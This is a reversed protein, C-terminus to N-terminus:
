VKDYTDGVIAILLNLMVVIFAFCMLNFIFFGYGSEDNTKQNIVLLAANFFIEMMGDKGPEECDEINFISGMSEPNLKIFQVLFTFILIGFFFIFMFSFMDRFVEKVMSIFSSLMFFIRFQSAGKLFICLSSVFLFEDAEIKLFGLKGSDIGKIYYYAYILFCSNGFFNIVNWFEYLFAIEGSRFLQMLNCCYLFSNVGSLGIVFRKNDRLSQIHYM